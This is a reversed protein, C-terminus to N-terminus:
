FSEKSPHILRMDCSTKKQLLWFACVKHSERNSPTSLLSIVQSLFLKQNKRVRRFWVSGILIITWTVTKHLTKSCNIAAAQSTKQWDFTPKESTFYGIDGKGPAYLYPDKGRTSYTKRLNKHQGKSAQLEWEKQHPTIIKTKPTKKKFSVYDFLVGTVQLMM